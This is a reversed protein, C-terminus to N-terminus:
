PSASIGELFLFYVKIGSNLFRLTPYNTSLWGALWAGFADGSLPGRPLSASGESCLVNWSMRPVLAFPSVWAPYFGMHELWLLQSRSLQCGRAGGCGRGLPESEDLAM